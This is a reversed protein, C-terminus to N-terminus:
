GANYAELLQDYKTKFNNTLTLVDLQFEGKGDAILLQKEVKNDKIGRVGIVIIAITAFRWSHISNQFKRILDMHFFMPVLKTQFALISSVITTSEITIDVHM